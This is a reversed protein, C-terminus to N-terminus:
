PVTIMYFVSEVATVTTTYANMPPTARIVTSVVTFGEMLNTSRHLTYTKGAVSHWRVVFGEGSAPPGASAMAFVSAPDTARTGALYEQLNSLGDGDFDDSARVDATTHLTDAPNAEVIAQEWVDPLGDADADAPVADLIALGADDESAYTYAGASALRMVQVLPEFRLTPVPTLVGVGINLSQVRAVGAGVQLRAGAVAVTQAVASSDHHVSVPAAPIGIDLALWGNRGDAVFVRAGDAAVGVAMGATDYRGEEVLTTRKLLLVGASGAAAVLNSASLALDFVYGPAAFIAGRVPAQPTTADVRQILHGDTIFAQRGAAVVARVSGLLADTYTGLLVPATPSAVSLVRLGHVEDAVYLLGDALAVGTANSCDAVTALLVPAAPNTVGYIRVGLEGAAVYALGNAVAAHRARTGVAHSGVFRPAALNTADAVRLGGRGDAVYAWADRLVLDAAEGPTDALVVLSPASASSANIVALGAAGASVLVTTGSLALATGPAPLIIQGALVPASATTLDVVSFRADRDVVYARTGAVALRAGFGIRDCAGVRVPAAPNTVDVILLGAHEDLLYATDGVVQVAHVPGDTAYTHLLVPAAPATVSFIALGGVGDAVYLRGGSIALGCAHGPTDLTAEHVPRALDAANIVQVGGAGCAAFVWTGTAALAEVRGPLRVAGLRVLEYPSACDLVSLTAGEGALLCGAPGVAVASCFGGVGGVGKIQTEAQVAGVLILAAWVAVIKLTAITRRM